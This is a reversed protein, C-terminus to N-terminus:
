TIVSIGQTPPHGYQQKYARGFAALSNYGVEAAVQSVAVGEALRRAAWELRLRRSFEAPTTNYITRFGSTLNNRNIGIRRSLQDISPPNHLERQYIIAAINILRQERDQYTLQETMRPQHLQNLRLVTLILLEHAKAKLYLNRIPEEFNCDLLSDLILWMEPTLPTSISLTLKNRNFFADQYEKKWGDTKLGFTQILHDRDIHITLARTPVTTSNARLKRIETLSYEAATISFSGSKVKQTQGGHHHYYNGSVQLYQITIYNRRYIKSIFPQFVKIGLMCLITADDLQIYSDGSLTSQNPDWIGYDCIIPQSRLETMLETINLELKTVM